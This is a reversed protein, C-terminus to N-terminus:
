VKGNIHSGHVRLQMNNNYYDNSELVRREMQERAELYNCESKSKCYHLIERRFWQEGYKVIDAKLADSSGWYIQWDSETKSKIAKKKKTGDKLTVTKYKTKTFEALKKGVYKKGDMMNTILYVFGVCDEPLSYIPTNNYYWETMFMEM